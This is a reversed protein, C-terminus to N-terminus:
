KFESLAGLKDNNITTLFTKADSLNEKNSGDSIDDTDNNSDDSDNDNCRSSYFLFPVFRPM